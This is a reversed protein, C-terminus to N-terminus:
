RKSAAAGIHIDLFKEVRTWFDVHTNLQHWGHGENPYAVWEVNPNTKQVADRFATGHKIPVRYDEEGYAMLLPRKLRAAQQLPSTEKLQQADKVPDGVLVPMGYRKADDSEDSWTIDYMLQIDTVGVWNVGCQYIGHDKILGMLAAYGGYSAGAICVRQSDVWGKQVAWQVADALDDQMALGWQKWGAKFHDFGYGTSGRFEPEIVVYGRSALFQANSEWGWHAGRVHPGGHVLVVAPSPGAPKGVPQTVLVPISRQDRAKFRYLSRSGMQAPDIWPRSAGLMQLKKTDARYIYYDPPARDSSASILAVGGSTCRRCSIQNVTTPLAADVKKQLADMGEDFWATGQRDTEYHVGLLQRSMSDYVLHGNFDYGDLTVLAEDALKLSQRHVQYLAQHGSANRALALLSGDPGVWYPTTHPAVLIDTESWLKWNGGDRLYTALKGQNRTSVAAPQGDQDLVWHRSHAPANSRLNKMLGTRTDLRAIKSDVVDWGADFTPATIIVDASGDNLTSHLSWIWPLRGDVNGKGSENAFVTGSSRVLQKFDSGDKNVAWLGPAMRREGVQVGATSFVLRESNAWDIQVVDADAFRAVVKSAAFNNLDLVVLQLRGNPGSAGVAVHRGDPSLNPDILKPTRFFDAVPIQQAVAPQALLGVAIGWACASVMAMSWLNKRM